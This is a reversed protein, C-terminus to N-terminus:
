LSRGGSQDGTGNVEPLDDLTLNDDETWIHVPPLTVTTSAVSTRENPILATLALLALSDM